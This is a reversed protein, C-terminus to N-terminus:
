ARVSSAQFAAIPVVVIAAAVQAVDIAIKVHHYRGLWERISAIKPAPILKQTTPMTPTM